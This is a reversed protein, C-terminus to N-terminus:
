GARYDWISIRRQVPEGTRIGLNPGIEHDRFLRRVLGSVKISGLLRHSETAVELSNGRVMQRWITLSPNQPRHASFSWLNRTFSRHTWMMRFRWRCDSLRQGTM